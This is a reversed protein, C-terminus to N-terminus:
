GSILNYKGNESQNLDLRADTQILILRFFTFVILNRNSDVLNWFTKETHLCMRQAPLVMSQNTSLNKSEFKEGILARNVRSDNPVILAAPRYIHWNTNSTWDAQNISM